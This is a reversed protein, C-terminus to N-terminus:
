NSLRENTGPRVKKVTTSKIEHDPLIKNNTDIVNTEEIDAKPLVNSEENKRLSQKPLPM